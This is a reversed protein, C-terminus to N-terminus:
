SWGFEKGTRLQWDVGACAQKFRQWAWEKIKAGGPQRGREFVYITEISYGTLEALEAVALGRAQRWAKAQQFETM